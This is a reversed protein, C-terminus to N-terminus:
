TGSIRRRLRSRLGVAARYAREARIAELEGELKEVYTQLPNTLDLSGHAADIANHFEAAMGVADGMLRSPWRIASPPPKALFGELAHEFAEAAATADPWASARRAAAARLDPILNSERVAEDLLRATGLPDDPDALLGNERHAILDDTFPGAEMVLAAGSGIAMAATRAPERPEGLALVVHPGAEVVRHPATMAELVAGAAHTDGAIAIPLPEGGDEPAAGVRMCPPPAPAVRADPRLMRLFSALGDSEATFDLPLDLALAAPLREPMDLPLTRHEIEAVHRVYRDATIAFLRATSRWGDAVAVDFREGETPGVVVEHRDGLARAHALLVPDDGVFCIRM